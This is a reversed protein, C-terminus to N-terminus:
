KDDGQCRFYGHPVMVDDRNGIIPRTRGNMIGEPTFCLRTEQMSVDIYQGEATKSRHELAALVGTVAHLGGILDVSVMGFWRPDGPEYGTFQPMGSDWTVMDGFTPKNKSPGTSGYGAVEVM